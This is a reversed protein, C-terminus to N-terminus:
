CGLHVVAPGVALEDPETQVVVMMREEEGPIGLSGMPVALSVLDKSAVAAANPCGMHGGTQAVGHQEYEDLALQRGM